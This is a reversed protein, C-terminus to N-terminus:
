QVRVPEASGDWKEKAHLSNYYRLCNKGIGNHIATASKLIHGCRCCRGSQYLEMRTRDVLLQDTSMRTIFRAGRVADTDEEFRSSKTRKFGDKARDSLMGLYFQKDEHVVYVFITGEPFDSEDSPKLFRYKHAIPEIYWQGDSTKLGPYYLILEGNGAHIYRNIITSDRLIYSERGKPNFIM